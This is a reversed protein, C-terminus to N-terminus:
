ANGVEALCPSFHYSISTVHHTSHARLLTPSAHFRLSGVFAWSSSRAMPQSPRSPTSRRADHTKTLKTYSALRAEGRARRNLQGLLPDLGDGSLRSLWSKRPLEFDPKNPVQGHLASRVAAWSASLLSRVGSKLPHPSALSLANPKM